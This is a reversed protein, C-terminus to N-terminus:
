DAPRGAPRGQKAESINALAQLQHAYKDALGWTGGAAADEMDPQHVGSTLLRAGERLVKVAADPGRIDGIHVMYGTMKNGEKVFLQVLEDDIPRDLHLFSPEVALSLQDLQRTPNSLQSIPVPYNSPSSEQMPAELPKEATTVMSGSAREAQRQLEERQLGSNVFGYAWIVLTALYIAFPEITSGYRYRRVNWYLAGAHIIALRSKFHDQVVWRLLEKRAEM